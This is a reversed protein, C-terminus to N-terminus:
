QSVSASRLQPTNTYKLDSMVCVTNYNSQLINVVAFNSPMRSWVNFTKFTIFTMYWLFVQTVFWVLAFLGKRFFLVYILGFESFYKQDYSDCTM